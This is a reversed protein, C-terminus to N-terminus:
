FNLTFGIGNQTFGFNLELQHSFYDFGLEKKAFDSIVEKKREGSISSIPIGSILLVGGIVTIAIGAAGVQPACLIVVIGGATMIGGTTLVAIGSKRKMYATHFKDYYDTFGNEKFFALMEKDSSVNIFENKLEPSLQNNSSKNTQSSPQIDFVEELGNEYTIMMVDSTKIIRTPGDLYDFAKYKVQHEDIELVKAKIETSNRKLIVDQAFINASCFIAVIATFVLLKKM